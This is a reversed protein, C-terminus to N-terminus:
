MTVESKLETKKFSLVPTFFCFFLPFCFWFCKEVLEFFLFNNVIYQKRYYAVVAPHCVFVIAVPKGIILECKWFCNYTKQIKIWIIKKRMGLTENDMFMFERQDASLVSRIVALDVGILHFIYVYLFPILPISKCLCFDNIQKNHNGSIHLLWAKYQHNIKSVSTWYAKFLRQMQLQQRTDMQSVIM